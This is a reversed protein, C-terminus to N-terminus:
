KTDPLKAAEISNKEIYIDSLPEFARYTRKTEYILISKRGRLPANQTFIRCGASNAMIKWLYESEAKTFTSSFEVKEDIYSAISIKIDDIDEYIIVEVNDEISLLTRLLPVLKEKDGTVYGNQIFTTLSIKLKKESQLEAIVNRVVECIEFIEFSPTNSSKTEYILDTVDDCFKDLAAALEAFKPNNEYANLENILTDLRSKNHNIVFECMQSNGTKLNVVTRPIEGNPHLFRIITLNLTKSVVATYTDGNKVKISIQKEEHLRNIANITTKKFMEKINVGKLLFPHYDFIKETALNSYILNEDEFILLPLKNRM